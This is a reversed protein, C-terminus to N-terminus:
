ADSCQPGGAETVTNKKLLRVKRQLAACGGMGRAMAPSLKDSKLTRVLIPNHTVAIIQAPEAM